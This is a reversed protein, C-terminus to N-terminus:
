MCLNFLCRVLIVHTRLVKLDSILISTCAHSFKESKIEKSFFLDYADRFFMQYLTDCSGTIEISLYWCRSLHTLRRRVM